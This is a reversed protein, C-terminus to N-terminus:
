PIGVAVPRCGAGLPLGPHSAGGATRSGDALEGTWADPPIRALLPAHRRCVGTTPRGFLAGQESFPGDLFGSRLGSRGLPDGRSGFAGDARRAAARKPSYDGHVLTDGTQRTDAILSELFAAAAPVQEASFAYYPELRLSEFFERKAFVRALQDARRCAERHITALLRAFEGVRQSNVQGALLVARWNQHPEPVAEMALLHCRSDEFILRPITGAPALQVLWRMGTAEREIRAPDSFWDVAVRLKLLAQKVVWAEGGPRGVWMTRNSVGGALSRISLEEDPGVRGTARLYADLAGPQEIDLLDSM